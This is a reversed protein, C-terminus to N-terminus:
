GASRERVRTPDNLVKAAAKSNERVAAAIAGRLSRPNLSDTRSSWVLRNQAVGYVRTTIHVIADARLYGPEYVITWGEDWSGWLTGPPPPAPTARIMGQPNSVELDVGSLRMIVVSDYGEDRVREKVVELTGEPRGPFLRHSATAGPIDRAMVNELDRRVEPDANQFVVLIKRFPVQAIGPDKWIDAIDTTACSALMVAAAALLRALTTRLPAPRM